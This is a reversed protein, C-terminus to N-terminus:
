GVSANNGHHKRDLKRDDTSLVRDHACFIDMEIDTVVSQIDQSQTQEAQLNAGSDIFNERKEDNIEKSAENSEEIEKVVWEPVPWNKFEQWITNIEDLENPVSFAGKEYNKIIGPVSGLAIAVVYTCLKVLKQWFPIADEPNFFLGKTLFSVAIMLLFSSFISKILQDRKYVSLPVIIGHKDYVIETTAWKIAGVTVYTHIRVYQKILRKRKSDFLAKETPINNAVLFERKRMKTQRDNYGQLFYPMFVIRDNCSKVLLKHEGYKDATNKTNLGKQLAQEAIGQKIVTQIMTLAISMYGIAMLNNKVNKWYEDTMFDGLDGFTIICLLFFGFAAIIVGINQRITKIIGRRDDM